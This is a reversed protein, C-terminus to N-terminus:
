ASRRARRLVARRRQGNTDLRRRLKEFAANVAAYADEAVDGEDRTIALVRGPQDLEIKVEYHSGKRHRRHPLGVTVRCSGQTELGDVHHRIRESLAESPDMGRWVIKLDGTM